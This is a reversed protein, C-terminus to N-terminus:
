ALTGQYVVLGVAFTTHRACLFRPLYDVLLEVVHCCAFAHLREHQISRPAVTVVGDHMVSSCVCKYMPARKLVPALAHCM